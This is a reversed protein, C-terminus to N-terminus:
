TPTSDTGQHLTMYVNRIQGLIFSAMWCSNDDQARRVIQNWLACFEHQLEPSTHRVNFKSAALLVISFDGSPSFIGLTM